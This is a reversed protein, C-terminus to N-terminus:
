SGPECRVGYDSSWREFNGIRPLELHQGVPYGGAACQLEVVLSRPKLAVVKASARQRGNGNSWCAVVKQGITM